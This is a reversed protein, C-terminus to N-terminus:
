DLAAIINYRIGRGGDVKNGPGSPSGIGILGVPPHNEDPWLSIYGKGKFKVTVLSLQM